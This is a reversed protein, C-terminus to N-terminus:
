KDAHEANRRVADTFSRKFAILEPWDVALL